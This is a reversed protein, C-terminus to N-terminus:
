KISVREINLAKGTKDDVEVIIGCIMCPSDSIEFRTPLGTTLWSISLEPRVGLVSLEPGTMGLDTIYATGMPLIKEDATQVHTHTGVVATVKGDLYFGMALKEATAEAHIDVIKIKCDEIEKLMSDVCSFPNDSGNIYAKGLLNIVGVRVRGMDIVGFGKGPCKSSVNAPRIIDQRDDLFHYVESRRFAHNGTTIFDVGSAFIHEAANSTIGNGPAANEGNAIVLDIGKFRKFGPLKQRLFECGQTGVIDGIILINVTNTREFFGM